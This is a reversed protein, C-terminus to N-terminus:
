QIHKITDVLEVKFDKYKKLNVSIINNFVYEQINDDTDYAQLLDEHDLLLSEPIHIYNSYITPTNKMYM